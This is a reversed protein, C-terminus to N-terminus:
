KVRLQVLYAEEDYAATQVIGDFSTHGAHLFFLDIRRSELAAFKTSFTVTEFRLNFNALKAIESMLAVSYGAPKGDVTVYDHPAFDGSVGVTVTDAGEITEIAPAEPISDPSANTVYQEYLEALRGSERLEEIASNIQATLDADAERTLMSLSVAPVDMREYELSDDGKIMFVAYDESTMAVDIRDSKLAALVENMTPYSVFEYDGPVLKRTIDEAGAIDVTGLITKEGEALAGYGILLTVLFTALLLALIRKGNM